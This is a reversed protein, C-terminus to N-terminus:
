RGGIKLQKAVKNELDKYLKNYLNNKAGTLDKRSFNGKVEGQVEIGTPEHVLTVTVTRVDQDRQQRANKRNVSTSIGFSSNVDTKNLSWIPKM